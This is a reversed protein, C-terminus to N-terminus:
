SFTIYKRIYCKPVFWMLIYINSALISSTFLFFSLIWIKPIDLVFVLCKKRHEWCSIGCKKNTYTDYTENFFVWRNLEELSRLFDIAESMNQIRKVTEVQFSDNGPKLGQYIQQLRLLGSVWPRKILNYSIRKYTYKAIHTQCLSSNGSM